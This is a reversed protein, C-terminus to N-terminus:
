KVEGWVLLHANQGRHLLDPFKSSKREFIDPKVNNEEMWRDIWSEEDEHEYLFWVTGEVTNKMIQQTIDTVNMVDPTSRYGLHQFVFTSVVVDFVLDTPIDYINEIITVRDKYKTDSIKWFSEVMIHNPELGYYHTHTNEMIWSLNRGVGCGIDLINKADYIENNYPNGMFALPTSPFRDNRTTYTYGRAVKEVPVNVRNAESVIRDSTCVGFEEFKKM